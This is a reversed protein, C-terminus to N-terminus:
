SLFVDRQGVKLCLKDSSCQNESLWASVQLFLWLLNDGPHLDLELIQM